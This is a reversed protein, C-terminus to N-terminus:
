LQIYNIGMYGVNAKELMWIGYFSHSITFYFLLNRISSTEFLDFSLKNRRWVLSQLPSSM